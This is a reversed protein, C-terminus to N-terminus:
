SGVSAAGGYREQFLILDEMMKEMLDKGCKGDGGSCLGSASGNSSHTEDSDMKSDGNTISMSASVGLALKRAAREGEGGQERGIWEMLSRVRKTM